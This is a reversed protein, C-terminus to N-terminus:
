VGCGGSSASSIDGYGIVAGSCFHWERESLVCPFDGRRGKRWLSKCSNRSWGGWNQDLEVVGGRWVVGPKTREVAVLRGCAVM